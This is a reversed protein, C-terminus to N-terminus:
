MIGPSVSLRWYVLLYFLKQHGWEIAVGRETNHSRFYHGNRDGLTEVGFLVEIRKDTKSSHPRTVSQCVCWAVQVETAITRIEHMRHPQFISSRWCSQLVLLNVDTCCLYLYVIPWINKAFATGFSRVCVARAAAAKLQTVYLCVSVASM